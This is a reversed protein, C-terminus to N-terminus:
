FAEDHRPDIGDPEPRLIGRGERELFRQVPHRFRDLLEVGGLDLGLIEGPAAPRRLFFGGRLGSKPLSQANFAMRILKSSKVPGPTMWIIVNEAELISTRAHGGCHPLWGIFRALAGM